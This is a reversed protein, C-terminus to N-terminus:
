YKNETSTWITVYQHAHIGHEVARKLDPLSRKGPPTSILIETAKQGIMAINYINSKQQPAIHAAKQAFSLAKQLGAFSQHKTAQSYWARCLSQLVM